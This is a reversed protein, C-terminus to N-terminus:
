RAVVEEDGASLPIQGVAERVQHHRDLVRIIRHGDQGGQVRRADASLIDVGDQRGHMETDDARGAECLCAARASGRGLGDHGRPVLGPAAANEVLPPDRADAM